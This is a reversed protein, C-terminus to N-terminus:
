SCAARCAGFRNWRPRSASATASRRRSSRSTARSGGSITRWTPRDDVSLMGHNHLFRVFFRAPFRLMSAPDTSWIAAGMPVIYHEVFARGYRGRALFEGLPLEGGPEDLLRPAERNFRLIDRVMGLFSPRLLNRRQAFLTNLSTGNYELGAVEDRVSFSMSSAQSAVGLEDLLAIFNPYTWDNFVIFGTDM